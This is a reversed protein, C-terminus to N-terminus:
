GSILRVIGIALTSLAVANCFAQITPSTLLTVIAQWEPEPSEVLSLLAATIAKARAQEANTLGAHEVAADLKALRRRIEDVAAPDVTLRQEIGTWDYSAIPPEDGTDFIAPDFIAPDFIGKAM